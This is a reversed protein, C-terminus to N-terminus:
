VSRKEVLVFNNQPYKNQFLSLTNLRNQSTISTEEPSPYLFGESSGSIEIVDSKQKGIVRIVTGMDVILGDVGVIQGLLKRNEDMNERNDYFSYRGRTMRTIIDLHYDGQHRGVELSNDLIVFRRLDFLPLDLVESMM